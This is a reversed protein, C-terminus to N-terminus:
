RECTVLRGLILSVKVPRHDSVKFELPWSDCPLDRPLVSTEGIFVGGVARKGIFDERTPVPDSESAVDSSSKKAVKAAWEIEPKVFVHDVGLDEIRHTRHTIWKDCVKTQDQDAKQREVADVLLLVELPGVATSKSEEAPRPPACQAPPSVDMGNVYGKERLHNCVPSQVEVNFDGVVVRTSSAIMNEMEFTDMESTLTHVQRLQFMRDLSTHPFSLHTNAIVVSKGTSKHKLWLLLAIRDVSCLNVNKSALIDFDARKVLLAVADM